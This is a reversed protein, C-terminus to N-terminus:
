IENEKMIVEGCKDISQAIRDGIWDGLVGTSREGSLHRSQEAPSLTPNWHGAYVGDGSGNGTNAEGSSGDM